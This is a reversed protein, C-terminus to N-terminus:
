TPWAEKREVLEATDRQADGSGSLGKAFGASVVGDFTEHDYRVAVDFPQSGASVGQGGARGDLLDIADVGAVTEDVQRARNGAIGVAPWDHHQCQPRD